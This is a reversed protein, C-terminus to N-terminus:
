QNESQFKNYNEIGLSVMIKWQISSIEESKNELKALEIARVYEAQGERIAGKLVLYDGKITRNYVTERIRISTEIWEITEDTVIRKSILANACDAFTKWDDPSANSIRVEQKTIYEKENLDSGGAYVYGTCILFAAFYTTIDKIKIM